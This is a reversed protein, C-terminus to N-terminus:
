QGRDPSTSLRELAVVQNTHPWHVAQVEDGLNLEGAAIPGVEFLRDRPKLDTDVGRETVERAAVLLYNVRGFFLFRAKSWKREIRGRSTIPASALDRVTSIAEVDIALAGIGLFIVLIISSPLELSAIVLLGTLILAAPVFLVARRVLAFRHNARYELYREDWEPTMGPNSKM